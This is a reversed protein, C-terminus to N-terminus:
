RASKAVVDLLVRESKSLMSKQTFNASIMQTAAAGLSRQLDSEVMLRRMCSSLGHADGVPYLLGTKGHLVAEALGGSDPAIMPVGLAMSELMALSFTEGVSSLVTANSAVIVPRVDSVMGLFHVRQALGNARVVSEIATRCEGDGALLLHADAAVTRFAEILLNHGKEPRFGAICSFVYENSSIGLSRRLQAATDLFDGRRFRSPDIGNHVVHSIPSLEPFRGIWYDRQANCVFIVAPLRKMMPRYILRYQLDRKIGPKYTSHVATVVPPRSRSKRSALWAILTAFQLVGQVVQIRENDMLSALQTVVDLDYKSKRPIHHFQVEDSLRSRQDLQHEFSCLHIEHGMSALGNALDVAQTEAGARILSPVTILCRFQPRNSHSNLSVM